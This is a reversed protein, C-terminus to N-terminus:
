SFVIDAVQHLEGNNQLLVTYLHEQEIQPNNFHTWIRVQVTTGTYRNFGDFLKVFVRYIGVDATRLLYEEPGYGKTFDRSLMGGGTTKNHLCYCEEGTPDRVHLEVDTMDTDWVLLVRLDVMVPALLRGDVLQLLEHHFGYFQSYNAIRNLEM